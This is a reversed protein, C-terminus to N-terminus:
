GRCKSIDSVMSDKGNRVEKLFDEESSFLHRGNAREEVEMEIEDDDDTILVHKVSGVENHLIYHELYGVRKLPSYIEVGGLEL